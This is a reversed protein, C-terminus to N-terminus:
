EATTAASNRASATENVDSRKEDADMSIAQSVFFFIYKSLLFALLSISFLDISKVPAFAAAQVENWRAHWNM